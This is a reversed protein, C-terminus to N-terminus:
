TSLEVKWRVHHITNWERGPSNVDPLGVELARGGLDHRCVAFDKSSDKKLWAERAWDVGGDAEWAGGMRKLIVTKEGEETKRIIPM